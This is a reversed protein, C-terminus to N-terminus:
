QAVAVVRHRWGWLNDNVRRGMVTSFLSHTYSSSKPFDLSTRIYASSYVTWLAILYASSYRMRRLFNAQQWAFSPGRDGVLWALLRDVADTRGPALVILPQDQQALATALHAMEYDNSTENSRTDAQEHSRRAETSIVSPLRM